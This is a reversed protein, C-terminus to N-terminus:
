GLLRVMLIEDLYRQSQRLSAKDGVFVAPDRPLAGTKM